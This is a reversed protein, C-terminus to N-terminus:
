NIKLYKIDNINIRIKSVIKEKLLDLNDKDVEIKIQRLRIM